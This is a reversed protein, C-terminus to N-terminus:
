GEKNEFLAVYAGQPDQIFSFKGFPIEMPPTVQKGGLSDVKKLSDDLNAVLFYVMWMPPADGWEDPTTMMGGTMAEGQQFITYEMDDSMPM